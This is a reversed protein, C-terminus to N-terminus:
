VQPTIGLAGLLRHVPNQLGWRESLFSLKDPDAPTTPVASVLVPLPVDERVRVVEIARTLYDRAGEIKARFPVLVEPDDMATFLQEITPFEAIVAAASKDGVGRVGPLGDSPDGRLTAFDAYSAAPVSYKHRVVADTVAEVKAFGKGIYLVVVGRGDDVLQFLDRDGTVINVPMQSATALTGIVDDAEFGEAGVRCIGIADLVDEIVPVQPALADPVEEADESQAASDVRHAKYEPVLAVRWAPRWDDDFCAILDTAPYDTLMRTVADLFGRVAGIPAGDPSRVTDPVGHFARFYMSASDLLLVRSTSMPLLSAVVGSRHNPTTTIIASGPRTAHRRSMAVLDVADQQLM